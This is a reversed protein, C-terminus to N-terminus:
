DVLPLQIKTWRGGKVFFGRGPPYDARKVRPLSTRLLTDGDSQDPQLLIGTKANRVELILQWISSWTTSEGEAVLLHGNRRCQKILDTLGSEAASSVFEPLSEVFIAIRPEGDQAPLRAYELRSGAGRGVSDIDSKSDTWIPLGSLPSRRPTFHVLPVNPYARLVSEALWRIATTRGSQSPGALMLVGAPDFGIPDLSTDEVGLVPHGAVSPPMASASITSPLKAIKPPRDVHHEAIEGAVRDVMRAQGAASLDKGLIALQLEMQRDAQMARGPVSTTTLVDRPVGMAAYADEDALRLVVKRQFASGISNPVVSPRDATMAVHVGVARGDILIRQFANYTSMLSMGNEYDSRFAGYGDLLLLIRPERPRKALVRYKQLTEANVERFRQSREDIVSTLYRLLRGVREEDDGLVISGVNPLASVASMGGGAFDLGYVHAIGERPTIAAACALTRLATSKGSGGAGIFLINGDIDPRFFERVQTQEDPDDVVGLVIQTDHGQGLALLDYTRALTQLWPKRPTPVRGLAAAATVTSVVREIDTRISDGVARRPPMKWPRGLGFDLELVDIPPAPPEAPTRAGPFASQFQTLRGPGTKAVGRGPVGPDFYAAMPTGLVDVSDHEDAMRLAIRLNTNARLNEKIVGAPRQTALILHLGLSRGRQAVDVVGEVFEPIESALAAFEDVVIILSPPCEPDGTMELEVLDKKGKANLLHERYRLEARLSRLARRVLYPSLDTVMGVAHPLEKCAAFAAGGKYDVFLFTVRDPSHAHAMGLVWAQLFESKGAGTTGGVLAHPGQARLDLTFPEAGAHGVIARLDSPRDRKTAAGASRDILSQNERWRSLVIEADDSAEHGLLSVVPVTRPLDSDDEVPVGSDVVPAMARAIERAVGDPVSECAVSGYVRGQRVMGARVDSGDGLDLYTRCAAPLGAKSEAVWLVHIGVDPGREAVRILRAADVSPDDIILVM